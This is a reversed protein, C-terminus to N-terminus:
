RSKQMVSQDYESNRFYLFTALLFAWFYKSQISYLEVYLLSFQRRDKFYM